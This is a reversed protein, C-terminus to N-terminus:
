RTRGFYLGRLAASEIGRKADTLCQDFLATLTTDGGEAAIRKAIEDARNLAGIAADLFARAERARAAQEVGTYPQTPTSM